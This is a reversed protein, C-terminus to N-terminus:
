GPINPLITPLKNKLGPLYSRPSFRFYLRSNQTTPYELTFFAFPGVSPSLCAEELLLDAHPAPSLTRTTPFWTGDSAVFPLDFLLCVLLLLFPLLSIQSYVGFAMRRTAANRCSNGFSKATMLLFGLSLDYSAFSRPGSPLVSNFLIRSHNFLTSVALIGRVGQEVSAIGMFATVATCRAASTREEASSCFPSKFSILTLIGGDAKYRSPEVAAVSTRLTESQSEGSNPSRMTFRHALPNGKPALPVTTPIWPSFVPHTSTTISLSNM